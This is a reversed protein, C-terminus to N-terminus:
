SKKCSSTLWSCANVPGHIGAIRYALREHRFDNPQEHFHMGGGGMLKYPEAAPGM